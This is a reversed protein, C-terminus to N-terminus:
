KPKIWFSCLFDLSRIGRRRVTKEVSCVKSPGDQEGALYISMAPAFSHPRTEGVGRQGASSNSTM